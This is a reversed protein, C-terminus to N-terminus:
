QEFQETQKGRSLLASCTQKVTSTVHAEEERNAMSHHILFELDRGDQGDREIVVISVSLQPCEQLLVHKLLVVFQARDAESLHNLAGPSVILFGEVSPLRGGGGAVGLLDICGSARDAQVCTDLEPHRVRLLKSVALRLAPDAPMTQVIRAMVNEHAWIGSFADSELEAYLAFYERSMLLLARLMHGRQVVPVSPASVRMAIYAITHYM